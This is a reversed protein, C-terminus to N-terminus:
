AFGVIAVAPSPSLLQHFGPIRRFRARAVASRILQSERWDATAPYEEDSLAWYSGSVGGENAARGFGAGCETQHRRLPEWLVPLVDQRRLGRTVAIGDHPM